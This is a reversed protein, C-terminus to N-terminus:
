IRKGFAAEGKMKKRRYANPNTGTFKKFELYFTSKSSFGARSGIEATTEEP